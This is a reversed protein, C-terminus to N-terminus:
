PVYPTIPRGFSRARVFDEGKMNVCKHYDVYSQWCHKTQNQQPFRADFGVTHLPSNEQDAM